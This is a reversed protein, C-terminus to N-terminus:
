NLNQRNKASVLYLLIGIGQCGNSFLVSFMLLLRRGEGQIVPFCFLLLTNLIVAIILNMFAARKGIYSCLAITIFLFIQSFLMLRGGAFGRGHNITFLLSILCCFCVGWILWFIKKNLPKM